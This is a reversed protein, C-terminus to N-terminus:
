ILHSYSIFRRRSAFTAIVVCYHSIAFRRELIRSLIPPPTGEFHGIHYAVDEFVFSHAASILLLASKIIYNNDKSLGLINM